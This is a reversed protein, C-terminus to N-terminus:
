IREWQSISFARCQDKSTTFAKPDYDYEYGAHPAYGSYRSAIPMSDTAAAGLYPSNSSSANDLPDPDDNEARFGRPKEKEARIM